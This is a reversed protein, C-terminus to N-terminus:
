ETQIIENNIEEEEQFETIDQKSLIKKPSIFVGGVPNNMIGVRMKVGRKTPTEQKREKDEIDGKYTEVLNKAYDGENQKQEETIETVYEDNVETIKPQDYLLTIKKKSRKSDLIELDNDNINRDTHLSSTIENIVSDARKNDTNSYLHIQLINKYFYILHKNFHIGIFVYIIIFLIIIIIFSSITIIYIIKINSPINDHSPFSNCNANNDLCLNLSSNHLTTNVQKTSTYLYNLPLPFFPNNPSTSHLCTGNYFCATTLPYLMIPKPNLFLITILIYQLKVLFMITINLNYKIFLANNVFHLNSVKLYM